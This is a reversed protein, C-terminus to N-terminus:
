EIESLWEFLASEDSVIRTGFREDAKLRDAYINRTGRDCALCDVYPIAAGAHLVDWIDNGRIVGRNRLVAMAKYTCWCTPCVKLVEAICDDNRATPEQILIGPLIERLLGHFEDREINEMTMTNSDKLREWEDAKKSFEDNMRISSSDGGPFSGETGDFSEAMFNTISMKAQHGIVLEAALRALPEPLGSPGELILPTDMMADWFHSYILERSAHHGESEAKYELPFVRQPIKISLGGSLEDMLNTQSERYASRPQKGLEMIISPSIPCIIRESLVTKTLRERLELQLPTSAKALRIWFNLDLFLLKRNLYGRQELWIQSDFQYNPQPGNM